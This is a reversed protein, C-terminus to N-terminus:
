PENNETEGYRDGYWNKLKNPEKRLSQLDYKIQKGNEPKKNTFFNKSGMLTVDMRITAHQRQQTSNGRWGQM